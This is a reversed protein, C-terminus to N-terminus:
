RNSIISASPFPVPLVMRRGVNRAKVMTPAYIQKGAEMMLVGGFAPCLYPGYKELVGAVSQSLRSSSPPLFLAHWSREVLFGQKRLLGRLQSTSYPEGSGFPTADSHAWFGRRNPVMVLAQGNPKLVRWVEDLLAEPDQSTELAHLLVIRNVSNDPLPLNTLDALCSANPGERPWYAVGQGEPMIAFLADAKGLWPRLLPSGYGLAAITEGAVDPWIQAIKERLLRRVLRGLTSIYFERLDVVDLSM